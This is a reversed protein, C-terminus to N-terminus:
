NNHDGEHFLPLSCRDGTWGSECLPQGRRAIEADVAAFWSDLGADLGRGETDSAIAELELTDMEAPNRM